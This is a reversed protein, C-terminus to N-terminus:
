AQKDLEAILDRPDNMAAQAPTLGRRSLLDTFPIWAVMAATAIRELRTAEPSVLDPLREWLDGDEDHVGPAGPELTALLESSVGLELAERETTPGYTVGSTRSLWQFQKM